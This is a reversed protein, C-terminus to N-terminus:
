KKVEILEFITDLFDNIEEEVSEIMKTCESRLFLGEPFVSITKIFKTAHPYLEGKEIGESIIRELWVYYSSFCYTNFDIMNQHKNALTISIFEKYIQRIEIDEEKYFFEFFLKIKERTAEITELKKEKKLNNEQMLINLIEFVIDEKNAFYEYITGKGVGATKAVESITLSGIGSQTFLEVCSLAIDKRKQVKDVVIAM